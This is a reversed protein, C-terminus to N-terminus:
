KNKKNSHNVNESGKGPKSNSSVSNQSLGNANKNINSESTKEKNNNQEQNKPEEGANQELERNQELEQNQELERNQEKYENTKAMIDKVSRNLWEEKNINEANGVCDMMKEVLNLKGPTVGLEQAEAVRDAGVAEATVVAESNNEKVEKNVVKELTQALEDARVMDDSSTTIVVGSAGSDLYGADSIERVTILIADEITKNKLDDLDIVQLMKTGDENVGNASLVREFRNVSYKISPNVDLSVYTFPTYYAYASIGFMVFLSAAASAFALLKKFEIQKKMSIEVEQGIKYNLNNVKVVCGEESLVAAAHNSLEVVIGKM